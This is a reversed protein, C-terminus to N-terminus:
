GRNKHNSRRASTKKKKKTPMQANAISDAKMGDNDSEYLEDDMPIDQVFTATKQRPNSKFWQYAYPPLDKYSFLLALVEEVTRAVLHNRKNGLLIITAKNNPVRVILTNYGRWWGAHFIVKTGDAMMRMRWGFGYSRHRADWKTGPSFAEDLSAHSVIKGEYLGQDWRFMDEISSYIGKDGTVGDLYTLSAYTWNFNHGVTVEKSANPQNINYVFSSKMNFPKFINEDVFSAFSQKSVKEVIAALMAYGTNSYLFKHDPKFAAKPKHKTLLAVMEQNSMPTTRDTVRECLNIYDPLGSRHNLLMRVTIDKYPFDPYFRQLSDEYSLLGREKLIMIATATFQKSVSALQYISKNSVLTREKRNSIGYSNEYIVKGDKAVLFGGSFALKQCIMEFYKQLLATTDGAVARPIQELYPSGDKMMVIGHGQTNCAAFPVFCLFMVLVIGKM